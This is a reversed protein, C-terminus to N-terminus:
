RIQYLTSTRPYIYGLVLVKYVGEPRTYIKYWISYVILKGLTIGYYICVNSCIAPMINHHMSDHWVALYNSFDARHLSSM